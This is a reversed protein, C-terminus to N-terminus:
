GAHEVTQLRFARETRETASELRWTPIVPEEHFWFAKVKASLEETAPPADLADIAARIEALKQPDIILKGMAAKMSCPPGGKLEPWNMFQRTHIACRLRGSRDFDIPTAHALLGGLMDHLIIRCVALATERSVQRSNDGQALQNWWGQSPEGEPMKIASLTM